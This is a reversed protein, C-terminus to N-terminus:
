YFYVLWIVRPRWCIFRSFLMRFCIIKLYIVAPSGASGGGSKFPFLAFSSWADVALALPFMVTLFSAWFREFTLLCTSNGLYDFDIKSLNYNSWIRSKFFYFFNSNSSTRKNKLHFHKIFRGIFICSGCSYWNFRWWNSTLM